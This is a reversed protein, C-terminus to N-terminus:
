VSITKLLRTIEEDSVGPTIFVRRFIAEAYALVSVAYAEDYESENGSFAAAFNESVASGPYIELDDPLEYDMLSANKLGVMEELIDRTSMGTTWSAFAKNDAILRFDCGFSGLWTEPDSGLSKRVLVSEKYGPLESSEQRWVVVGHIANRNAVLLMAEQISGTALMFALEAIRRMSELNPKRGEEATQM